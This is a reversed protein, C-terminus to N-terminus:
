FVKILHPKEPQEGMKQCIAFYVSISNKFNQQLEELTKGRFKVVDSINIVKGSFFNSKEDFEFKGIYDKYQLMM